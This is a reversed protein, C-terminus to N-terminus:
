LNDENRMYEKLDRIDDPKLRDVDFTFGRRGEVLRQFSEYRAIIRCLIKYGDIRNDGLQKEQCYAKVYDYFSPDDKFYAAKRLKALGCEKKVAKRIADYTLHGDEREIKGEEDLRLVMKLWETSMGEVKGHSVALINLLRSCFNDFESKSKSVRAVVPNKLRGGRPIIIEGDVFYAPDIFVGSRLRPRLKRNIIVRVLIERQGDYDTKSLSKQISYM